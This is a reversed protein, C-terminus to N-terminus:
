EATFNDIFGNGTQSFAGCKTGTAHNSNTVSMAEVDNLYGKITTGNLGLGVKDGGVFPGTTGLLTYSGAINVWFYLTGDASANALFFNANDIFRGVLGLGGSGPYINAEILMNTVETEIYVIDDNSTTVGLQNSAIAWTGSLVVWPDGLPGDARNFNDSFPLLGARMCPNGISVYPRGWLFRRVFDGKSPWILMMDYWDQSTGPYRFWRGNKFQIALQNSAVAIRNIWRSSVSVCM